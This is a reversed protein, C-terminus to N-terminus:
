NVIYEYINNGVDTVYVKITQNACVPIIANIKENHDTSWLPVLKYSFNGKKKKKSSKSTADLIEWCKLQKDIGGSFIFNRENNELISMCTITGGHAETFEVTKSDNPNLLRISGDGLGCVLVKGQFAYLISQVFPPNIMPIASNQTISERSFNTSSISRGSNFDWTCAICDFGGTSINYHFNHRFSIASILNTHVRSLRKIIKHDDLTDIITISDTDDSLALYQGKQHLCLANIDSSFDLCLVDDTIIIETSRLDYLKLKNGCAVYIMHDSKTSFSIAEIPESNIICKNCKGTRLDWLRVSKDDSGSAIIDTNNTNGSLCTIAKKHGSFLRQLRISPQVVVTSSISPSEEDLM